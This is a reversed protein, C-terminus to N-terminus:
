KTISRTVKHIAQKASFSPRDVFDCSPRDVFDCSRVHAIPWLHGIFFTLHCISIVGEEGHFVRLRTSRWLKRHSRWLKRFLASRSPRSIFCFPTRGGSQM